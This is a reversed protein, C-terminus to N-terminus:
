RRLVLALLVFALAAIAGAAVDDLVIGTGGPLRELAAVPGPKWVDLLRFLLFAAAVGALLPLGSLGPFAAHLGILAIAQGAVEDVVVERPDEVGLCGATRTAAPIGPFVALGALGIVPALGFRAHLAEALVVAAV